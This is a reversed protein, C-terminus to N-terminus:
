WWHFLEDNLRKPWFCRGWCYVEVLWLDCFWKLEFLWPKRAWLWFKLLWFYEFLWPCVLKLRYGVWSLMLCSKIVQLGSEGSLSSYYWSFLFHIAIIGTLDTADHAVNCLDKANALIIQWVLHLWVLRQNSESKIVCDKISFSMVSVLVEFWM